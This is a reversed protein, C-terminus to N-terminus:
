RNLVYQQIMAGLYYMRDTKMPNAHLHIIGDADLTVCVISVDDDRTDEMIQMAVQKPTDLKIPIVGAM